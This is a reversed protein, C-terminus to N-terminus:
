ELWKNPIYLPMSDEWITDTVITKNTGDYNMVMIQGYPQFTNDFLSSEDKFGYM